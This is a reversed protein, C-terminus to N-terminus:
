KITDRTINLKGHLMDIYRTQRIVGEISLKWDFDYKGRIESDFFQRFMFLYQNVGLKLIAQSPIYYKNEPHPKAIDLKLWAHFADMVEVLTQM